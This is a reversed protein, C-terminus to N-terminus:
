LLVGKKLWDLIEARETEMAPIDNLQIDEVMAFGTFHGDGLTGSRNSPYGFFLGYNDPLSQNPIERIIYPKQISMYGSTGGIVGGTRTTPKGGAVVAAASAGVSEMSSMGGPEGSLGSVNGIAKVGMDIGTACLDILGRVMQDFSVSGVPIQTLCNGTYQGIVVDAPVNLGKRPIKTSVFAVCDGSLVDCHYVVHVHQGMIEDVALERYGIYPLFISIKTYPSFDFCNNGYKEIYIDGCDIEYFQDDVKQLAQSSIYAGGIKPYWMSNGTPTFPLIGASVFIDMPNNFFLRIIDLLSEAFFHQAFNWMEAPSLHYLTIFGADVAGLDPLPPIEIDDVPRNHGGGGGDEENGPEDDDENPDEDDEEPEFQTEFEQNLRAYSIGCGGVSWSNDEGDCRTQESYWALGFYKTNNYTCDGLAILLRDILSYIFGGLAETGYIKYYGNIGTGNTLLVTDVYPSYPTPYERRAITLTSVEFYMMHLDTQESSHAPEVVEYSSCQVEFVLSQKYFQAGTPNKIEIECLDFTHQQNDMHSALYSKILSDNMGYAGSWREYDPDSASRGGFFYGGDGLDYKNIALNCLGSLTGAPCYKGGYMGGSVVFTPLWPM